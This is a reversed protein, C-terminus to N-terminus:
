QKTDVIPQYFVFLRMSGLRVHSGSALPYYKQPVLREDNLWTGNVSGLDLIEYTHKNRRIVAHRRSLGQGYGGLASLDLLGESLLGTTGAKRGLVFEGSTDRYIPNFEGEIYVAIGSEPVAAEDISWDEIREYVVAPMNTTRAGPDMFPDELAAGCRRCVVAEVENSEKCTPCINETISM